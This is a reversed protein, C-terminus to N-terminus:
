EGATYLELVLTNGSAPFAQTGSAQNNLVGVKFVGAPVWVDMTVVQASSVPLPIQVDFARPNTSNAAEFNTGDISHLWWLSLTSNAAFATSSGLTLTLKGRLYGGMNATPAVTGITQPSNNFVGSSGGVSSTNYAGQALANLETTLLNVNSTQVTYVTVGASM